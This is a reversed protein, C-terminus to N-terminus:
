RGRIRRPHWLEMWSILLALCGVAWGLRHEPPPFATILTVAGWVVLFVLAAFIVLRASAIM